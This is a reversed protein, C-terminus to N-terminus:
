KLENDKFIKEAENCCDCLQRTLLNIEDSVSYAKKFFADAEEGSWAASLQTLSQELSNKTKEELSQSAELLKEIQVKVMSEDYINDM